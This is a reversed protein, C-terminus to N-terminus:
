SLMILPRKPSKHNGDTKLAYMLYGGGISVMALGAIICVFSWFAGRAVYYNIVFMGVGNLFVALQGLFVSAKGDKMKGQITIMVVGVWVYACLWFDGLDAGHKGAWFILATGIMVLAIRGIWSFIKNAM